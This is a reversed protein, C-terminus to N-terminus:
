IDCYIGQLSKRDIKGNQNFLMEDRQYIEAPIMYDQLRGILREKLVESVINGTYVLLLKEKSADFLCCCYTVEPFSSAVAEIEGLEVRFGRYKIQFDRRGVYMLEYRENYCVLDGTKYVLEPYQSQLPNQVFVEATKVPQGYYGMSLTTGRVYLEGVRGTERVEQNNEDVIMVDINDCPKGIPLVEDDTFARNIVYYTCAEACETPGYMNVYVAGPYEQRWYNLQKTPMVEGCFLVQQLPIREMHALVELNAFMVLMSPIWVLTNVQYKVLMKWVRSPVSFYRNPILVTTAGNRIPAYVDQISLDFYLQAQNGFVTHEDFQCCESIWEIFDIVARHSLVVGKPVGTSGSTFFVYLVDTDIVGRTVACLTDEEMSEAAMLDEFVLIRATGAFASAAECHKQDTIIVAPGLMTCIQELRVEPMKTDLPTYFNGSYATGMFATICSVSKDMFIVVPRKVIQCQILASAVLLAERRLQSFSIEREIDVFALKDPVRKVIEDLYDTIRCIM